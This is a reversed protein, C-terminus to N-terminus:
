WIQIRVKIGDVEITKMKFDVGPIPIPSATPTDQHKGRYSSMDSLVRQDGRREQGVGHGVMAQHQDGRGIGPRAHPGRHWTTIQHKWSGPAAATWNEWNGLAVAERHQPQGISGTGPQVSSETGRHRLHRTRGTRGHGYNGPERISGTGQFQPEGCGATEWNGYAAAERHDRSSSEWPKVTERHGGSGLEGTSRSGISKPEGTGM